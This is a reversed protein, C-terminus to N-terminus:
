IRRTVPRRTFATPLFQSHIGPGGAVVILIEEPRDAVGIHAADGTEAFWRARRERIARRLGHPFRRLPIRAKEFLYAKVAQKTFGDRNLTAAHEPGLVLVPGTAFLVNNHGLGSVTGVIVDLIEKGTRCGYPFVNQPAGAGVVTVTSATPEFGREVHLPEWPSADEAEAFCFTFKGPHGHTSMDMVGPAAGGLNLLILRIARGITANARWGPGFINGRSNLDLEGVIPGNVITLPALANTATLMSYLGCDEDMLAMTAAEVVPFYSPLCGAMVANVAVKRLTVPKMAPPMTGVSSDPDRSARLLMAAIKDDTPPVVPLGDTWGRRYFVEGIEDITGTLRPEDLPREPATGPIPEALAAIIQSLAERVQAAVDQERATAMPHRVKVVPLSPMGGTRAEERAASIFPV